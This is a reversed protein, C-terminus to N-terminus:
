EAVFRLVDENIVVHANFFAGTAGAAAAAVFVIAGLSIVIRKM